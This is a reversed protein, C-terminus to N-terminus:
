FSLVIGMVNQRNADPVLDASTPLTGGFIGRWISSVVGPQDLAQRLGANLEAARTPADTYGAIALKASKAARDNPDLKLGDPNISQGDKIDMHGLVVKRYHDILLESANKDIQKAINPDKDYMAAFNTSLAAMKEPDTGYTVTGFTQKDLDTLRGTTAYFKAWGTPNPQTPDDVGMAAKAFLAAKEGVAGEPLQLHEGARIRNVLNIAEMKTPDSLVSYVADAIQSQVQGLSRAQEVGTMGLRMGKAKQLVSQFG